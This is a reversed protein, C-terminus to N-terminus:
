LSGNVWREGNWTYGKSAMFTDTQQKKEAIAEESPAYDLWRKQNLWTQAMCVFETGLKGQELLEHAYRRASSIIHKEDAGNKLAGLYKLEAPHRPNQGKRRPYVLWFDTFSM